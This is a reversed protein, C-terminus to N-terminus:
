CASAVLNAFSASADTDSAFLISSYVNSSTCFNFYSWRTSILDSVEGGFATFTM